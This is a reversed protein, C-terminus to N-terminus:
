ISSGIRIRPKGLSTCTKDDYAAKSEAPATSSATSRTHTPSTELATHTTLGGPCWAQLSRFSNRIPFLWYPIALLSIYIYIYIYIYM